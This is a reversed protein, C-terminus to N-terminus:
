PTAGLMPAERLEIWAHYDCGGGCGFVKNSEKAFAPIIMQKGRNFQITEKKAHHDNVRRTLAIADTDADIIYEHNTSSEGDYYSRTSCNYALWIKM